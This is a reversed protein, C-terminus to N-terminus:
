TCGRTELYRLKNLVLEIAEKFMLEDFQDGSNARREYEIKCYDLFESASSPLDALNFGYFINSM